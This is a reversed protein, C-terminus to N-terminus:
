ERVPRRGGCSRNLTGITAQVIAGNAQGVDSNMDIDQLGNMLTVFEPGLKEALEDRKRYLEDTNDDNQEARQIQDDVKLIDCYAKTKAEDGSITEIVKQAEANTIARPEQVQAWGPEAAIVLFAVILKLNM